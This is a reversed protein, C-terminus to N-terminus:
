PRGSRGLPPQSSGLDGGKVRSPSLSVKPVQCTIASATLTRTQYRCGATIVDLTPSLNDLRDLLQARSRAFEIQLVLQESPLYDGSPPDCPGLSM